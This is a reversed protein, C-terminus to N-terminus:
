QITATPTIAGREARISGAAQLGDTGEIQFVAGLNEANPGAFAGVGAGGAVGSSESFTFAVGPTGPQHVSQSDFQRGNLDMSGTGSGNAFNVTHSFDGTAYSTPNPNLPNGSPGRWAAEAVGNYTATGSVPMSMDPENPDFVPTQNGAVFTGVANANETMGEENYAWYGWHLYDCTCPDNPATAKGSVLFGGSGNELGQSGIGFHSDNLYASLSNTDDFTLTAGAGFQRLEIQAEVTGAARDITLSGPAALNQPNTATFDASIAPREPAFDSFTVSDGSEVYGAALLQLTVPAPSTGGQDLVLDTATRQAIHAYDLTTSNGQVQLDFADGALVAYDGDSGFTQFHYADFTQNASLELDGISGVVIEGGGADILSPNSPDFDGVIVGAQFAYESYNAFDGQAVKSALFVKGRQLDILLPTQVASADLGFDIDTIAPPGDVDFRGVRSFAHRSFRHPDTALEFALLDDAGASMSYAALDYPLGAFVTLQSELDPDPSGSIATYTLAFFDDEAIQPGALREAVAPAVGLGELETALFNPNLYLATDQPDFPNLIAAPGQGTGTVFQPPTGELSGGGHAVTFFGNGDATGTLQLAFSGFLDYGQFGQLGSNYLFLQGNAYGANFANLATLSLSSSGLFSGDLGFVYATDSNTGILANEFPDYGVFHSSLGSIGASALDLTITENLNGTAADLVRVESGSSGYAYFENTAANYSPMTQSSPSDPLNALVENYSGLLRGNADREASFLGSTFTVVEIEGTNSNYNWARADINMPALSQEQNGALDWVSATYSSSGARSGYYLGLMPDFGISATNSVIAPEVLQITEVAQSNIGGSGGQLTSSVQEPLTQRAFGIIPVGSPPEPPVMEPLNETIAQDQGESVTQTLESGAPSAEQEGLADSIAGSLVEFDQPPLAGETLLTVLSQDPVEVLGGAAGPRGQFAQMDEALEAPSVQWPTDAGERTVRTKFGARRMQEVQQGGLFITLDDGFLFTVEITDQDLVNIVAVGGRIGLVGVPTTVEVPSSKSIRGGVFRLLGRRLTLNMDGTKEKPDYVFKDILLSSNPGITLATRDVMLVQAQGVSDTEILENYVIEDGIVVSRTTEGPPTRDANQNVAATVGAKQAQAPATAAALMLAGSLVAISSTSTKLLRLM